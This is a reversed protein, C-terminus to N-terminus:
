FLDETFFDVVSDVLSGRPLIRLGLEGACRPCKSDAPLPRLGQCVLAQGCVCRLRTGAALGHVDYPRSCDPCAILKM